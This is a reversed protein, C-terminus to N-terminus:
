SILLVEFLIKVKPEIREEILATVLVVEFPVTLKSDPDAYRAAM